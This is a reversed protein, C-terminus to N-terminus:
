DGSVRRFRARRTSCRSRRLSPQVVVRGGVRRARRPRRAAHPARLHARRRSLRSPAPDPRRLRDRVTHGGPLRPGQRGGRASWSLSRGAASPPWTRAQAGRGTALDLRAAPRCRALRGLCCRARTAGHRRGGALPDDLRCRSVSPLPASTACHHCVLRARRPPHPGSTATPAAGHRGCSRRQALGRGGAGTSCSSRRSAAGPVGGARGLARSFRAAAGDSGGCTSWRSQRCRAGTSGGRCGLRLLGLSGRLPRRRDRPSSGAALPLGGASSPRAHYPPSGGQKYSPDHEEDVVVLALDAFRRSCRRARGSASARRAMAFACGSTAASAPRSRRTCSRSGIVSAPGSGRWRRRHSASRPSSSSRGGGGRWRRRSRPSTSRPRAPAVGHLLLERPAGVEGDLAAVISDSRGREARHPAAAAIRGRHRGPSRGSPSPRHLQPHRDPRAARPPASGAPRRRRRRRARPLVDRRGAAGRPGGAPPRRAPGRGGPGGRRRGRDRGAARDPGPVRPSRPGNRPVAGAAARALPDLLVRPRGLARARRARAHRGVRAGRAARRAAGAAARLARRPRGSGRPCAQRGFPVRVITGVDLGAMADPLRYDFPGRLSRATTLPEVKAIAMGGM